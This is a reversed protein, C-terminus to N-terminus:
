PCYCSTEEKATSLLFFYFDSFKNTGHSFLQISIYRQWLNIMHPFCWGHAAMGCFSPILIPLYTALTDNNSANDM